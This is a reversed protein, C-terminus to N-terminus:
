GAGGLFMGAVFKLIMNNEYILTLLENGEIQQLAAQCLKMGPMLTILIMLLWVYFVGEACGIFAGGLQNMGSIIPIKTMLDLMHAIMRLVVSTLLFLLVFCLIRVAFGALVAGLNEAARDLGLLEFLPSASDGSSGFQGSFLDESWNRVFNRILHSEQLHTQVFPMLINVIVLSIAISAASVLMRVLGRNHGYLTMGLVIFVVLILLEKGAIVSMLNSVIQM